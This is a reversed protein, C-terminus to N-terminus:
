IFYAKKLLKNALDFNRKKAEKQAQILTSRNIIRVNKATCFHIANMKKILESKGALTDVSGITRNCRPCIVPYFGGKDPTWSVLPKHM